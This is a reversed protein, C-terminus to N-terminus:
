SILCLSLNVKINFIHRRWTLLAHVTGQL